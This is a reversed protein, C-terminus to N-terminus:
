ILPEPFAPPAAILAYETEFEIYRTQISERIKNLQTATDEDNHYTICLNAIGTQASLMAGKIEDVLKDYKSRNAGDIVVSGIDNLLRTVFRLTGEIDAINLERSENTHWLTRMMSTLLGPKQPLTTATCWYQGAKISGIAKLKGIAVTSRKIISFHVASSDLM